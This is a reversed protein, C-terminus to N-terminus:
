ADQTRRRTKQWTSLMQHQQMYHIGAAWLAGEERGGAERGGTQHLAGGSLRTWQLLKKHWLYFRASVRFLVSVFFSFILFTPFSSPLPPAPSFYTFVKSMKNKVGTRPRRQAYQTHTHTHTTDKRTAARKAAQSKNGGGGPQAM